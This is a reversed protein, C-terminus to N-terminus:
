SYFLMSVRKSIIDIRNGAFYRGLAESCRSITFNFQLRVLDGYLINLKKNWVTKSLYKARKPHLKLSKSLWPLREWFFSNAALRITWHPKNRCFGTQQQSVSATVGQPSINMLMPSGWFPVLDTILTICFISGADLLFTTVSWATARVLFRWLHWQIFAREFYDWDPVFICHPNSIKAVCSDIPPWLM